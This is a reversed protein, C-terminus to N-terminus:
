ARLYPKVFDYTRKLAEQSLEDLPRQGPTRVEWNKFVGRLYLVYSL